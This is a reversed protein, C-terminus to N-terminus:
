RQSTLEDGSLKERAPRVIKSNWVLALIMAPTEELTLARVENPASKTPMANSNFSLGIRFIAQQM